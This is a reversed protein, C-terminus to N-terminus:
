ARFAVTELHFRPDEGKRSHGPPVKLEREGEEELEREKKM